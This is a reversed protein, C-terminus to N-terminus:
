RGRNRKRSAKAAKKVKIAKKLAKSKPPAVRDRIGEQPPPVIAALALLPLLSNVKSTM